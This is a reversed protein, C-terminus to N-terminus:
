NEQFFSGKNPSQPCSSSHLSHHLFHGTLGPKRCIVSLARYCSCPLWAGDSARVTCAGTVAISNDQLNQLHKGRMFFVYTTSYSVRHRWKWPVPWCAWGQRTVMCQVIQAQTKLQRLKPSLNRCGNTPSLLTPPIDSPWRSTGSTQTCTKKYFVM